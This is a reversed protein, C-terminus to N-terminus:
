LRLLMLHGVDQPSEIAGTGIKSDDFPIDNLRFKRVAIAWSDFAFSDYNCSQVASKPMRTPGNGEKPEWVRGPTM